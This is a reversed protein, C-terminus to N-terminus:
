KWSIGAVINPNSNILAKFLEIDDATTIKFSKSSGLVYAVQNGYHSNLAYFPMDPPNDHICKDYLAMLESITFFEPCQGKFLASRDLVEGVFTDDACHIMTDYCPELAVSCGHQKASEITAEIVQNPILPRNGDFIGILNNNDQYDNYLEKIANIGNCISEYRTNGGIVISHVKGIKYQEIYAQVFGQWGNPVIVVITEIESVNSINQLTYVIIPIDNVTLFQKPVKNGTRSGAGGATIIASIM